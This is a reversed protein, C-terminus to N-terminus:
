KESFDPVEDPDGLDLLMFYDVRVAEEEDEEQESDPDVPVESWTWITVALDRVGLISGHDMLLWATAVGNPTTLLAQGEEDRMTYRLGPWPVLKHRRASFFIARMIYRTDPNAINSRGIFRLKRVNQINHGNLDNWITPQSKPAPSAPTTTSSNTLRAQPTAPSSSPPKSPTPAPTSQKHWGTA